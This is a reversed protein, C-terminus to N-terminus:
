RESNPLDARGLMWGEWALVEAPLPPREPHLGGAVPIMGLAGLLSDFADEGAPSPGFGAHVAAEASAELRIGNAEAFALIAGAQAARWTPDRKRTPRSLGVRAYAEAPYAEALVVRGPRALAALDGEFPWVSVPLGLRRAPLLLDRWGAIAAKGVQDAGLTWFLGCAARVTEGRRDCLRLATVADLGLRALFEGKLGRGAKPGAPFFPRAPSVQDLSEAPELFMEGCAEDLFALFGSAGFGASRVFGLPLGIPFDLGLLAAGGAAEAQRALDVVLALPDPVPAPQAM